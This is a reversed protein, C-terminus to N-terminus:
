EQKAFNENLVNAYYVVRKEAYSRADSECQMDWYGTPDIDPNVYHNFEMQYQRADQFLLLRQENRDLGEFLDAVQREYIHYLEHLLVEIIYWGSGEQAISGNLVICKKVDDYYGVEHDMMQNDLVISLDESVGLYRCEIQTIVQFVQLKENVSFNEWEKLRSLIEFNGEIMEGGTAEYRNDVWISFYWQSFLRGLYLGFVIISMGVCALRYFFRRVKKMRAKIIKRKFRKRKIKRSFLILVYVGLTFIMFFLVSKIWWGTEWYAMTTYIGCGLLADQVDRDKIFLINKKKVELFIGVGSVTILIGWYLVLSDFYRLEPIKRFMLARYLFGLIVMGCLGSYIYDKKFEVDEKVSCKSM